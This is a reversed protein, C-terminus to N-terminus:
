GYGRRACAGLFCFNLNPNGCNWGCFGCNAADFQLDVCGIGPCKTLGAACDVTFDGEPLEDLLGCDPCFEGDDPPPPPPPPPAGGQPTLPDTPGPLGQDRNFIEEGDGAGDGDTDFVDPNTGYVETEDDDFLGDGDRDPRQWARIPTAARRTLLGSVLGAALWRLVDRRAPHHVVAATWRDFTRADM